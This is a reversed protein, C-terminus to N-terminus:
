KITEGRLVAHGRNYVAELTEWAEDNGSTKRQEVEDWIHELTESLAICLERNHQRIKVVPLRGIAEIAIVKAVPNGDLDVRDAGEKLADRYKFGSVYDFLAVGVALGSLDPCAARIDARIGLKLPIKDAGKPMFAKPFREVLIERTHTALKRERARRAPSKKKSM